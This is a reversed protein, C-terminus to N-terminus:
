KAVSGSERRAAVWESSLQGWIASNRDQFELLADRDLESEKRSAVHFYLEDELQHWDALAADALVWRTRWNFFPELTTVTTVLASCIFALNVPWAPNSTGLVITATASLGFALVRSATAWFTWGGRRWRAYEKAERIHSRVAEALELDTMGPSLPHSPLDPKPQRRQWWRRKRPTMDHETPDAQRM